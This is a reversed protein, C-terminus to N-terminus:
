NYQYNMLIGGFVIAGFWNNDLFAMFCREPVRDRILHQQYIFLLAALALGAYYYRNFGLRTGILVLTLIVLLQIIGIITRDADEFLIATSKIGLKIDEDRDVMAYMTDYVLAWLVAAMLLIWGIPPVTGTQAAFAMPVAWGFALGLFFQPIYTYRKTFPYIIALLVGVVSLEITLLNLQVVLLFAFLILVNAVALAEPPTVKGTALPRQRTRSVHADFDRDALDNIICGASRMLVVGSIFIILIPLDPVGEAAIWLAWLTPWLLLLIGIPKNLRALLVYQYLREGARAAIIGSAHSLYRLSNWIIRGAVRCFTIFARGTLLLLTKLALLFKRVQEAAVALVILVTRFIGRVIRTVCLIIWRLCRILFQATAQLWRGAALLVLPLYHRINTITWRWISTVVLAIRRIVIYVSRIALACAKVVGRVIARVIRAAHYLLFHCSSIIARWATRICSGLYHLGIPLYYGLLRYTSNFFATVLATTRRLFRVGANLCYRSTRITGHWAKVTNIKIYQWIIPIYHRLFVTIRLGLVHTMFIVRYVFRLTVGLCASFINVIFNQIIPTYYRLFEAIRIGLVHTMFIIRYIFRLTHGLCLKTMGSVIERAIPLYYRLLEAIRIALVTIMFIVRYIFRAVHELSIRVTQLTYSWASCARAKFYQWIIPAYYHVLDMARRWAQVLYQRLIQTVRMGARWYKKALRITRTLYAHM